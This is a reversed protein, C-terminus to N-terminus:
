EMGPMTIFGPLQKIREIWTLVNPYTQLEIKGEHALAIYPFCAIDAITPRDLELWARTQLHTNLVELLAHARLAASNIDISTRNFKWYARSAAFGNAVENAATSLWQVIKALKEPDASVWIEQGYRTALYVLIAQSDRITVKDDQLVPVEGFENLALYAPTKQEKAQLNVSVTAYNLKLFTLLLRVKYCNGSVEVNYLKLM